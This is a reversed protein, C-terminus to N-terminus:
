SISDPGPRQSSNGLGAVQSPCLQARMRCDPATPLALNSYCAAYAHVSAEERDRRVASIDTLRMPALTVVHRASLDFDSM